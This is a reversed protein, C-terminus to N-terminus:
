SLAEIGLARLTFGTIHETLLEPTLQGFLPPGMLLEIIPRNQRYFLVQAVISNGMLFRRPEPLDPRLEALIDQLVKAMPQIYDRVVEACAASPQALERMMVHLATPRAPQTMRAVMTRIFDRLKTVAPTGDAWEPFPLVCCCAHANKVVAIYLRNKDGFHYNIAAINKVGARKLIERVSAAERGKQAFVFEAAELIRQRTTDSDASLQETETM